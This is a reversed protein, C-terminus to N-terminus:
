LSKVAAEEITKVVRGITNLVHEPPETLGIMRGVPALRRAPLKRPENFVTIAAAVGDNALYELENVVLGQEDGQAIMTEVAKPATDIEIGPKVVLPVQRELISRLGALLGSVQESMHVPLLRLGIGQSQTPDVQIEPITLLVPNDSM